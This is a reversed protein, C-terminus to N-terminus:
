AQTQGVKVRAIVRMRMMKRERMAMATMITITTEIM